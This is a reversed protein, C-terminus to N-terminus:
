DEEGALEKLWEIVKSADERSMDEDIDVGLEERAREKLEAMTLQHKAMAKKALRWIYSRQRPTMRRAQPDGRGEEDRPCGASADGGDADGRVLELLRRSMEEWSRAGLLEKVKRLNEYAEETLTVKFGYRGM